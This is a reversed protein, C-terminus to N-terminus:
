LKFTKLNTITIPRKILYLKLGIHIKKSMNLKEQKVEYCIELRLLNKPLNSIIIM